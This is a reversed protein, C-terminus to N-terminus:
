FLLQHVIDLKATVFDKKSPQYSTLVEWSYSRLSMLKISIIYPLLTLAPQKLCCIVGIVVVRQQHWDFECRCSNWARNRSHILSSKPCVQLALVVAPM